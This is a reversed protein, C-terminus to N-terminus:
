DDPKGFKEILQDTTMGRKKLDPLIIEDYQSGYVEKKTMRQYAAIVKYKYREDVKKEEPKGFTETISYITNWPKYYSVKDELGYPSYVKYLFPDVGSPIGTTIFNGGSEVFGDADDIFVAKESENFWVHQPDDISHEFYKDFRLTRLPKPAEQVTVTSAAKKFIDSMDDQKVPKIEKKGAMKKVIDNILGM